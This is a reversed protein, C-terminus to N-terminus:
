KKTWSIDYNKYQKKSIVELAKIFSHNLEKNYIYYYAEGDYLNRAILAKLQILLTKKSKDIDDKDMDFSVKENKCFSLFESLFTEDAEFNQDYAIVDPYYQTLENRYQNAYSLCFKNVLGKRLVNSYFDSAFSTDMPVLIDPTIGGGGYVTRGNNTKFKLSDPFEKIMSDTLEGSDWRNMLDQRYDDVGNEYPKQIFRGSPTFYKAITLRIQGGDPLPLQRQVLGKGFSRRGIVLGRDWDQIAGSMIESASASYQDILVIVNGEEYHGYSTSSMSNKPSNKGETYVILKNESLLEDTMQIAANLYGGSNGKLDIILDTMGQEKLKVLAEKFEQPTKSAFRNVKIYGVTEDVMYAADISFIPIKDRTITFDLLKKVGQRKIEVSVETDKNGRLRDAVGKNSIGVGAVNESDVYIIKDGALLGVKESPGGAITAVVVITDNLINFQIGVGEFNGVLPENMEAVEEKSIYVSHPDLTKLVSKIATEALENNDVEDVYFQNIFNFVTEINQLEEQPSQGYTTMCCLLGILLTLKKMTEIKKFLLMIIELRMM